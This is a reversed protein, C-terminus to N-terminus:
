KGAGKQQFELVMSEGDLIPRANSAWIPTKNDDAYLMIFGIGAEPARFKVGREMELTFGGAPQPTIYFVMPMRKGVEKDGLVLVAFGRVERRLPKGTPPM